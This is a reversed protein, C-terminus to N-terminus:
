PTAVKTHSLIVAADAPLPLTVTRRHLAGRQTHSIRISGIDNLSRELPRVVDAPHVRLALAARDERNRLNMCYDYRVWPRLERSREYRHGVYADILLFVPMPCDNSVQHESEAKGRIRSLLPQTEDHAAALLPQWQQELSPPMDKLTPEFPGFGLRRMTSRTKESMDAPGLEGTELYRVISEVPTPSPFLGSDGLKKLSRLEGRLAGILAVAPSLQDYEMFSTRILDATKQVDKTDFLAMQLDIIDDMPAFHTYSPAIVIGWQPQTPPAVPEEIDVAAGPLLLLALREKTANDTASVDEDAPIEALAALPIDGMRIIGQREATLKATYVEQSVRLSRCFAADCMLVPVDEATASPCLLFFACLLTCRFLTNM